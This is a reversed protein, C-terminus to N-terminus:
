IFEEESWYSDIVEYENNDNLKYLHIDSETIKLEKFRKYLIKKNNIYEWEEDHGDSTSIAYRTRQFEQWSEEPLYYLLSKKPLFSLLEDIATLDGSAIDKKIEEIVADILVQKNISLNKM